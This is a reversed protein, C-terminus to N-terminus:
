LNSSQQIIAVKPELRLTDGPDMTDKLIKKSKFVREIPTMAKSCTRTPEKVKSVSNQYTYPKIFHHRPKERITYM